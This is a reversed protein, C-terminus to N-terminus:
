DSQEKDSRRHGAFPDNDTFWEDRHTGGPRVGGPLLIRLQGDAFSAVTVQKWWALPTCSDGLAGHMHVQYLGSLAPQAPLHALIAYEPPDSGIGGPLPLPSADLVQIADLRLSVGNAGFEATLADVFEQKSTIGEHRYSGDSQSSWRNEFSSDFAEGYLGRDINDYFSVVMSALDAPLPTSAQGLGALSADQAAPSAVARWPQVRLVCAVVLLVFSTIAFRLNHQPQSRYHM